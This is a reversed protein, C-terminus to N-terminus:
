RQCVVLGGGGGSIVFFFILSGDCAVWGSLFLAHFCIKCVNCIKSGIEFEVFRFVGREFEM